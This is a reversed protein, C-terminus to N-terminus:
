PQGATGSQSPSRSSLSSTTPIYRLVPSSMLADAPHAHPASLCRVATRVAPGRQALHRSPPCRLYVCACAALSHTSLRGSCASCGGPGRPDLTNTCLAAVWMWATSLSAPSVLVEPDAIVLSLQDTKTRLGDHCRQSVLPAPSRFSAVQPLSLLDSSRVFFHGHFSSIRVGRSVRIRMVAEWGTHRTLNRNIEAVQLVGHQTLLRASRATM